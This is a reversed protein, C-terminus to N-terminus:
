SGSKLIIIFNWSTVTFYLNYQHVSVLWVRGFFKLACKGYQIEDLDASLKLYSVHQLVAV